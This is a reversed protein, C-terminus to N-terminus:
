PRLLGGSLTKYIEMFTEEIIAEPDAVKALEDYPVIVGTWGVTHWRALPPLKPSGFDAPLPHAYSYLYPREIGPSFPAFGFNLHPGTETANETAFWLFSLDFHEPWVVVPTMPGGLRARFRATATFIRYLAQAYDAALEPVVKLPTENISTPRHGQAQLAALFAETFSNHEAMKPALAQGQAAFTALLTEFLSAQSHGILPISVPDGTSPQFVLTMKPMDLSIESGGPLQGTSLGAPKIQLSLELYNPVHECVLRRTAGMLETARHLSHATEEWNVLTPLTM